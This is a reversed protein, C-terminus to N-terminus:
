FAQAAIDSTRGEGGLPQMKLGVPLDQDAQFAGPHITRLVEFEGGDLPEFLECRENRRRSDVLNQNVAHQRRARFPSLLNYRFAGFEFGEFGQPFTCVVARSTSVSQPCLQQPVPNPYVAPSSKLTTFM